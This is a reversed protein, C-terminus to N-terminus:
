IGSVPPSTPVLLDDPIQRNGIYWRSNAAFRICKSHMAKCNKIHSRAASKWVYVMMPRILHRYLLVGNRFSLGWRRNLLLGVTGTDTGSEMKGSCYTEVLHPMKVLAVLLYLTDVDGEIPDGFPQVTRLKPIRMVTKGFLM